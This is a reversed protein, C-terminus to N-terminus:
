PQDLCALHHIRGLGSQGGSFLLTIYPEQTISVCNISAIPYVEPNEPSMTSPAKLKVLEEANGNFLNSTPMDILKLLPDEKILDQFSKLFPADKRNPDQDLSLEGIDARYVLARLNNLDKYSFM